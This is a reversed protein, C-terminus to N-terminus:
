LVLYAENYKEKIRKKSLCPNECVIKLFTDHNIDSLKKPFLDNKAKNFDEIGDNDTIGGRRQSGM